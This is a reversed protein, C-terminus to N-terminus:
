LSDHDQFRSEYLLREISIQQDPLFEIGIDVNSERAIRAALAIITDQDFIFFVRCESKGRETWTKPRAMRAGSQSIDRAESLYGEGGTVILAPSYIALRPHQRKEAPNM